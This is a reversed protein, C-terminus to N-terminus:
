ALRGTYIVAQVVALLAQAVGFRWDGRALYLAGLGVYTAVQAALLAATM